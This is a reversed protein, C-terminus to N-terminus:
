PEVTREGPQQVPVPEGKAKPEERSEPEDRAKPEESPEPDEAPAGEAEVEGPPEESPPEEAEPAPPRCSSGDFFAAFFAEAGEAGVLEVGEGVLVGARTTDLVRCAPTAAGPRWIVVLESARAAQQPSGSWRSLASPDAVHLELTEDDALRHVTLGREDLEIYVGPRGGLDVVSWVRGGVGGHLTEYELPPPGEGEQEVPEPPEPEVRVLSGDEFGVVIVQGAGEAGRVWALSTAAGPLEVRRFAGSPAVLDLLRGGFPQVVALTGDDAIASLVPEHQPESSGEGPQQGRAIVVTKGSMREIIHRESASVVGLWTGSDAYLPAGTLEYEVPAWEPPGAWINGSAGPAWSALETGDPSMGIELGWPAKSEVMLRGVGTATDLVGVVALQQEDASALSVALIEANDDIAIMAPVMPVDRERLVEASDEVRLLRHSGDALSWLRYRSRPELAASVLQPTNAAGALLQPHEEAPGLWLPPAQESQSVLQVVALNGWADGLAAFGHGVALERGRAVWPRGWADDRAWGTFRDVVVAEGGELLVFDDVPPGRKDPPPEEARPSFVWPRLITPPVEAQDEFRRSVVWAHEPSYIERYVVGGGPLVGLEPDIPADPTIERGRKRGTHWVQILDAEAGPFDRAAMARRELQESPTGTQTLPALPHTAYGERLAAESLKAAAVVAGDASLALGTIFDRSDTSWEFAPEAARSWLQVHHGDSIALRTTGVALATIPRGLEFGRTPATAGPAWAYLRGSFGASYLTGDPAVALQALGAPHAQHAALLRGEAWIRVWGDVDASAMRWREGAAPPLLELDVITAEHFPLAVETPRLSTSGPALTPAGPQPAASGSPTTACAAASTSALGLVLTM